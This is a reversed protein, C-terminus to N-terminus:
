AAIRPNFGMVDRMVEETAVLLKKEPYRKRFAAVKELSGNLWQGKVEIYLHLAPVYFDPRYTIGVWPGKGVPFVKTEYEWQMGNKDLYNKAFAVEWRSRMIVHGMPGDYPWDGHCYIPHGIQKEAGAAVRSDTEKTLGKNWSQQLGHQGKNWSPWNKKARAAKMKESMLARQAASVSHGMKARSVAAKHSATLKKGTKAKAIKARHEESKPKGKKAQSIKARVDLRRSSNEDGYRRRIKGEDWLQQIAIRSKANRDPTHCAPNHGRAYLKDSSKVVATCDGSCQCKHEMARNYLFPSTGKSLYWGM